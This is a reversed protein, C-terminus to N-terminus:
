LEKLKEERLELFTKGTLREIEGDDIDKNKLKKRTNDELLIYLVTALPIFAIM